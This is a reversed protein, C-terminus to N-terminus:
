AHIYAEWKESLNYIYFNTSYNAKDNVFRFNAISSLLWDPIGFSWSSHTCSAKPLQVKKIRQTYHRPFSM